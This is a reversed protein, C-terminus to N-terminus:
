GPHVERLSQTSGPIDTVSNQFYVNHFFDAVSGGCERMLRRFAHSVVCPDFWLM